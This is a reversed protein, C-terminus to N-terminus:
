IITTRRGLQPTFEFVGRMMLIEKQGLDEEWFSSISCSHDPYNPIVLFGITQYKVAHRSLEQFRRTIIGTIVMQQKSWGLGCERTKRFCCRWKRQPFGGRGWEWDVQNLQTQVAM